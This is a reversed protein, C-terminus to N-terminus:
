SCNLFDDERRAEQLRQRQRTANGLAAAANMASGESGPKASAQDSVDSEEDRRRM